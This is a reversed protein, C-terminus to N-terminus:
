GTRTLTSATSGSALRMLRLMRSARASSAERSSSASSIGPSASSAGTSASYNAPFEDGRGREVPRPMKETYQLFLARRLNRGHFFRQQNGQQEQQQAACSGKRLFRLVDGILAFEGRRRALELQGPHVVPVVAGGVHAILLLGRVHLQGGGLVAGNVAQVDAKGVFGQDGPFQLGLAAPFPFRDIFARPGVGMLVHHQRVPFFREPHFGLCFLLALQDHVFNECEAGSILGGEHLNPLGGRFLGIQQHDGGM